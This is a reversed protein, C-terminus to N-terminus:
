LHRGVGRMGSHRAVGELHHSRNGRDKGEQYAQDVSHPWLLTTLSRPRHRFSQSNGEQSRDVMHFTQLTIILIFVSLSFSLFDVDAVGLRPVLCTFSGDRSTGAM